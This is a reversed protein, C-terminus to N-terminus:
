IAEAVRIARVTEAVDHARVMQAGANVALIACALSEPLRENIPAGTLRGLFSKRSAGMLVPRGLTTFHGVAALLRLNQEQSKGFGLGPDLIVNDAPTGFKNLKKLSKTFFDKVERVIDGTKAAEHLSSPLLTGAGGSAHMLVYGAGFEGVARWMEDGTQFAAVDNVIDAGAQLAARAVGPKFTDVSLLPVPKASRGSPAKFIAALKEIVPIVRRLEEQEDVATAGPRTSQGGVDVIEAGEEALRRAHAVAADPGAFKGGDSFSDPTVNVIGMVLAPRPFRIEAHRARFLM